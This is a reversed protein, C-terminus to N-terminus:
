GVEICCLEGVVVIIIEDSDRRRSCFVSNEGGKRGVLLVLYYM